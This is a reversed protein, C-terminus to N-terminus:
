ISLENDFLPEQDINCREQTEKGVENTMDM